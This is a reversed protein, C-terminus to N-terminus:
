LLIEHKGPQLLAPPLLLIKRNKGARLERVMGDEIKVDGNTGISKGNLFVEYTGPLNIVFYYNQRMAEPEVHSRLTLRYRYQVVQEKWRHWFGKSYVWPLATEHWKD